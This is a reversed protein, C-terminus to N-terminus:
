FPILSKKIIIFAISAIVILILTLELPPRWPKEITVSKEKKVKELDAVKKTKTEKLTNVTTSGIKKPTSKYSLTNNTLQLELKTGGSEFVLNVPENSLKPMPISGKLTDGFHETVAKTVEKIVTNEVEKSTTKTATASKVKTSGCSMLLYCLSVALILIKIPTRM